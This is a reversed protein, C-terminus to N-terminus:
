GLTRNITHVETPVISTYSSKTTIVFERL